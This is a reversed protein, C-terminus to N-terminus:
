HWSIWVHMCVVCCWLFLLVDNSIMSCDHLLVYLMVSWKFDHLETCFWVFVCLMILVIMQYGHCLGYVIWIVDYLMMCCILFDFVFWVCGNFIMCLRMVGCLLAYLWELDCVCWMFDLLCLKLFWASGSIMMHCWVCGNLFWVFDFLMTYWCCEICCSYGVHQQGAAWLVCCDLTGVELLWLLVHKQSNQTLLDNLSNFLDISWCDLRCMKWKTLLSYGLGRKTGCAPTSILALRASVPRCVSWSVQLRTCVCMSINRFEDLTVPVRSLRLKDLCNGLLCLLPNVCSNSPDHAPKKKM